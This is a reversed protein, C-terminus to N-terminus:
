LMKMQAAAVEAQIRIYQRANGDVFRVFHFYFGCMEAVSAHVVYM